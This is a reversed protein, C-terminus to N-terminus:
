DARRRRWVGRGIPKGQAEFKREYDTGTTWGVLEVEPVRELGPEADLVAVIAAWYEQHDSAAKLPGGPELAAVAAAAFRADFLRRKHHRKKPWPDLFYAHIAALSGPAIRRAVFEKGDAAVIRVNGLGRRDARAQGLLAYESEVELGLFSREPHAAAEALLFRARGPGIELEVPASRGFLAALDAPPPDAAPTEGPLFVRPPPPNGRSRRPLPSGEGPGLLGARALARRLAPRSM